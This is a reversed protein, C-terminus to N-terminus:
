ATAVSVSPVSPLSILKVNSPHCNACRGTPRETEPDLTHRTEEDCTGCWAPRAKTEAALAACEDCANRYRSHRRCHPAGAVGAKAPPRPTKPPESLSVRDSHGTPSVRNPRRSRQGTAPKVAPGHSRQDDQGTPILVDSDVPLTYRDSTRHGGSTFRRSRSILGQLELEALQRRVTRESQGTMEALKKQGPFCSHNEDAHDALAVLVFKAGGIIKQRYAWTIAVNSM